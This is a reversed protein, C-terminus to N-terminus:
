AVKRPPPKSIGMSIPIDDTLSAWETQLVGTEKDRAPQSAKQTIADMDVIRPIGLTVSTGQPLPADTSLIRQEIKIVDGSTLWAFLGFPQGDKKIIVGYMAESAEKIEEDQQDPLPIEELTYQQNSLEVLLILGKGDRFRLKTYAGKSEQEKISQPSDQALILSPLLNHKPWERLEVESHGFIGGTRYGRFTGDQYNVEEWQYKRESGYLTSALDFQVELYGEEYKDFDYGKGFNVLSTYSVEGGPTIKTFVARPEGRLIRREALVAAHNILYEAREYTKSGYTEPDEPWTLAIFGADEDRDIVQVGPYRKEFVGPNSLLYDPQMGEESLMIFKYLFCFLIIIVSPFGLFKNGTNLNLGQNRYSLNYSDLCLKVLLPM